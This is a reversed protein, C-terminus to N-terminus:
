RFLRRDNVEDRTLRQRASFRYHKEKAFLEEQLKELREFEETMVGGAQPAIIEAVVQEVSVNRQIAAQAASEYVEDPLNLTVTKV